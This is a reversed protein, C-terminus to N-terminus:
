YPDGERGGSIGPSFRLTPTIQIKRFGPGARNNVQLLDSYSCNHRPFIEYGTKYQFTLIKKSFDIRVVKSLELTTGGERVLLFFGSMRM